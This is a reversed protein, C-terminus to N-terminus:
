GSVLAFQDDTSRPPLRYQVWVTGNYTPQRSKPRGDHYRVAFAGKPVTATYYELGTVKLKRWNHMRIQLYDHTSCARVDRVDAETFGHNVACRIAAENKTKDWPGWSM